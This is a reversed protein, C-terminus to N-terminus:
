PDGPLRPPQPHPRRPLARRPPRRHHGRPLRLARRWRAAGGTAAPQPPVKVRAFGARRGDPREVVIGFSLALDSIYPFPHAPDVALPTLIPFIRTEFYDAVFARDSESLSEITVIALGARALEAEVVRYAAGHRAVLRRAEASVAALMASAEPVGAFISDKLGAVRIQFFEDLNSGFIAIFKARELM